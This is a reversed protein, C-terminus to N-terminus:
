FPCTAVAELGGTIDYIVLQHQNDYRMFYKHVVLSPTSDSLQTGDGKFLSAGSSLECAQLAISTGAPVDDFLQAVKLTAFQPKGKWYFGDKKAAQHIATEKKLADGTLLSAMKPPLQEAGGDTEMASEYSYFLTYLQEAEKYLEPSATPVDTQYDPGTPSSTPSSMPLFVTPGTFGTDSLRTSCSSSLLAVGCVAAVVTVVRIHRPSRAGPSPTMLLTGEQLSSPRPDGHLRPNPAARVPCM